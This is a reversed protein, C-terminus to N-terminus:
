ELMGVQNMKPGQKEAEVTDSAGLDAGGFGVLLRGENCDKKTPRNGNGAGRNYIRPQVRCHEAKERPHPEAGAGSCLSHPQVRSKRQLASDAEKASEAAGLGNKKSPRLSDKPKRQPQKCVEPKGKPFSAEV